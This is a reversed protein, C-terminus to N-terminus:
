GVWKTLQYTLIFYFVFTLVLDNIKYYFSRPLPTATSVPVIEELSTLINRGISQNRLVKFICQKSEPM